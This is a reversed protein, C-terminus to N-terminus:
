PKPLEGKRRLTPAKRAPKTEAAAPKEGTKARLKDEAPTGLEQLKKRDQADRHAVDKKREALDQESLELSDQTTEIASTLAFKYREVDAPESEEIMKLDVVLRREAEAVASIGETIITGRKLADDAVTDIAEIIKTYDELTQHIFGSRGAKEKALAQKLMDVRLRAFTSYLTLRANPDQATLRIQDVEDATLFDRTAQAALAHASLSIWLIQCPIGNKRM